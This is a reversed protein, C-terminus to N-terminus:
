QNEGSLPDEVLLVRRGFKGINRFGAGLMHSVDQLADPRVAVADRTSNNGLTGLLAEEATSTARGRSYFEASYSRGGWYTVTMDPDVQLARNILAQESKPSLTQPSIYTLVTIALFVATVAVISTSFVRRTWIGPAGYVKVWLSVILVTTAPISPLTYAALINAAPTFLLIPAIAWFMLYSYWGNDDARVIATVDGLRTLLFAAFFTWPLFAGLWYLWILGKARAHGSGYLDGQWGSVTFREFHEGIIFYQLFGPTKLEAAIYWPLALALMLAIGSVWPLARLQSWRHGVIIWGMIPILTLVSAVPGKALLGVALGAFFLHGWVRNDSPHTVANYFAVMSLTTGLVMVMDTMVFASAGFFLVSSFMVLVTILGHDRGVHRAVFGGSLGLVGLGSLLIFVRAGFSGVGFIKMGLASLWTYLPPKGWFPVGYDFQPTIWDGTELMKRAIEAYRAETTDTFPLWLMFMVRIFLLSFLAIMLVRRDVFSLRFPQRARDYTGLATTNTDFTVM